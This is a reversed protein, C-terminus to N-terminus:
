VAANVEAGRDGVAELLSFLDAAGHTCEGETDLPRSRELERKSGGRDRFRRADASAGPKRSYGSRLAKQGAGAWGTRANGAELDQQRFPDARSLFSPDWCAGALVAISSVLRPRSPRRPTGTGRRRAHTSAFGAPRTRRRAPWDRPLTHLCYPGVEAQGASASSLRGAVALTRCADAKRLSTVTNRRFARGRSRVLDSGANLRFVASRTYM